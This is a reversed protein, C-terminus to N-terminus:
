ILGERNANAHQKEFFIESTERSIAQSGSINPQISSKQFLLIKCIREICDKHFYFINIKYFLTYAIIFINKFICIIHIIHTSIRIKTKM